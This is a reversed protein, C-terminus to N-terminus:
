LTEKDASELGAVAGYAMSAGIASCIDDPKYSEAMSLSDDSIVVNLPNTKIAKADKIAKDQYPTASLNIQTAYDYIFDGDEITPMNQVMWRETPKIGASSLTSVMAILEADPKEKLDFRFLPKADSWLGLEANLDVVVNIMNQISRSIASADESVLDWAANDGVEATARSNGSTNDTTLSSGLIAKQIRTTQERTFQVFADGSQGAGLVSINEDKSTAAIGNSVLDKLALAFAKFGETGYNQDTAGHVMPAGHHQIFMAWIKDSFSLNFYPWYCAALVGVGEPARESNKYRTCFLKPYGLMPVEIDKKGDNFSIKGEKISFREFSRDEIREILVAGNYLNYYPEVYSIGYLIADWIYDVDSLVRDVMLWVQDVVSQDAGNADIVYKTKRLMGKRRNTASQVEGFESVIRLDAKGINAKALIESGYNKKFMSLWNGFTVRQETYRNSNLSQLKKEKTIKKPRSM